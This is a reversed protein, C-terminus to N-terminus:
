ESAAGSELAESLLVEFQQAAVRASHHKEAWKRGNRGLRDAHSRDRELVLIAEALEAPSEPPVCLGADARQVLCWAETGEDISALVPRGSAMITFTKSPLAGLGAGEVLSVLGVNAAALVEPMQEFPQYGLFRVNSLGLQRAKEVL